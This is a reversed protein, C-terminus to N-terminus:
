NRDGAGPVPGESERIGKWQNDFRRMCWEIVHKESLVAFLSLLRSKWRTIISYVSGECIRM